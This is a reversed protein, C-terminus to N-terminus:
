PARKSHLRGVRCYRCHEHHGHPWCHNVRIPHDGKSTANTRNVPHKNAKRYARVRYQRRHVSARNSQNLQSLFCSVVVVGMGSGSTCHTGQMGISRTELYNLETSDTVASIPLSEGTLISRDFKADSSVDLFRIDAPIKSGAKFYMIDGPVVDPAPIMQKSGDRLVLCDDPLMGTISAMVRSSSFDQWANFVAQIVFVMFLVIALALNAVAPPEGLPKWSIFVLISGTLLLSGFGGFFYGFIKRPLQSKPPSPVNRGYQTRKQQVLAASLGTDPSTQLRKFIEVQDLIHWELDALDTFTLM